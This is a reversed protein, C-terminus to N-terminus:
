RCPRVIWGGGLVRDGQYFVAAQGPAPAALPAIPTVRVTGAQDESEVTAAVGRHRSRIQVECEVPGNPGTEDVWSVDQVKFSAVELEKKTGVVVRSHPPDLEVVYLPAAASVGLGRRQGVTYHHIGRHEGLKRGSTDVIPGRDPLTKVWEEVLSVYGEGEPVFCLEQSECKDVVPLNAENAMERVQDKSWNGLPFDVRSLRSCTLRHLFYSQDKAKDRGRCLGVVGSSDTTVRAYHGTVILDYGEQDAIRELETFKVRQNCVVCPNPTEGGAYRSLSPLLVTDLFERSACEERLEISLANAVQRVDRQDEESCCRSSEGEDTHWLHLFVGTVDYGARVM